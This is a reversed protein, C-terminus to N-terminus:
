QSIIYAPNKHISKTFSLNSWFEVIQMDEKRIIAFDKM